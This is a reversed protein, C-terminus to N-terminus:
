SSGIFVIRDLNTCEDEDEGEILLSITSVNQFRVYKLKIEAWDGDFTVAGNHQPEISSTDDFSLNPHNAWVKIQTPIQNDSDEAIKAPRKLLVTQIKANNQLQINLLIQSDLDSSFEQGEALGATLLTRLDINSSGINLAESSTYDIGGNLVEMGRPIYQTIDSDDAVAGAGASGSEGSAGEGGGVSGRVASPNLAVLQDLKTTIGARDAGVVRAVEKGKHFYLFTPMSSVEYKAAVAQSQDVDVQVFLVQNYDAQLSEVFPSIVKCPGCWEAFFDVLVLESTLAATLDAPTKVTTLKM